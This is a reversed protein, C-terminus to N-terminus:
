WSQDDWAPCRVHFKGGDIAATARCGEGVRRSERADNLIGRTPLTGSRRRGLDVERAAQRRRHARIACAVELLNGKPWGADWLRLTKDDSWSLIRTEDRTLVGGQVIDDHKM